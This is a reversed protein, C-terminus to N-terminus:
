WVESAIWWDGDIHRQHVDGDVPLGDLSDRTVVRVGEKLPQPPGFRYFKGRDPRPGGPFTGTVQFRLTCKQRGGKEVPWVDVGWMRMAQIHEQPLRDLPASAQRDTHVFDPHPLACLLERATELDARYKHFSAILQADPTEPETCGCICFGGLGALLTWQVARTMRMM